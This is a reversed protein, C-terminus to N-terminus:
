TKAIDIQYNAGVHWYGSRDRYRIRSGRRVRLVSYGPVSLPADQLATHATDFIPNCEQSPYDRLSVVKMVYDLSEERNTGFSYEDLGTQLQFIIYPTANQQLAMTNYVDVSGSYLATGQAIRYSYVVTGLRAAIAADILPLSDSM